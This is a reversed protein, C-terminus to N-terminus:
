GPQKYGRYVLLTNELNAAVGEIISKLEADTLSESRLRNVRNRGEVIIRDATDLAKELAEKSEHDAAVKQAAVHFNLLLGQVGQLLTDHL